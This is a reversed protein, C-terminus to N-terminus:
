KSELAGFPVFAKPTDEHPLIHKEMWVVDKWAGLKFACRHFRACPVYGRKGYFAESQPNPCTICAYVASVNQKQLLLELAELLANGVGKGRADWRVYSSVEAAADAARRDILPSAYAYGLIIGEEEAVLYPYRLLTKEMRRCFEAADPATLEFTVDTEEVYPRYIAALAAADAATATRLTLM